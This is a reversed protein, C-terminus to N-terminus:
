SWFLLAFLYVWLVTMFHWYLAFADLGAHARPAYRGGAAKRSVAALAVLGGLLHLAHAGTLLFFFASHPTTALFVGQAVLQRWAGLQGLVFVVGLVGTAELGHRLGAADGVRIRRRARELAASSALLVATNVWLLPPVALSPWGAQDRRFLYASTFAIFLMVVAALVAAVGIVGNAPPAEAARGHGAGDGSFRAGRGGAGRLPPRTACPRPREVLQITM